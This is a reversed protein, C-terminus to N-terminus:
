EGNGMLKVSILTLNFDWLKILLGRLAAQDAIPAVLTTIPHGEANLAFTVEIGDMWSEWDQGLQGQVQIEYYRRRDTECKDSTM